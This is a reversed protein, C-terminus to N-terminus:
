SWQIPDMPQEQPPFDIVLKRGEPDLFTVRWEEFPTQSLDYAIDNNKLRDLLVRLGVGSLSLTAPRVETRNSSEALIVQLVPRLKVSLVAAIPMPPPEYQCTLGLFKAYFACIPRLDNTYITFRNKGQIEMEAETTLHTALRAIGRKTWALVVGSGSAPFRCISRLFTAIQSLATTASSVFRVM